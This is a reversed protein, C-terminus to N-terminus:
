NIDFNPRKSFQMKKDFLFLYNTQTFFETDMDYMEDMEEDILM